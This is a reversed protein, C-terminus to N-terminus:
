LLFFLGVAAILLPRSTVRGAKEDPRSSAVAPELGESLISGAAVVSDAHMADRRPSGHSRRVRHDESATECRGGKEGGGEKGPLFPLLHSSTLGSWLSRPTLM